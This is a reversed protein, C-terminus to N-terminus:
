SVPTAAVELEEGIDSTSSVSSTVESVSVSQTSYYAILASFDLYVVLSSEGKESSGVRSDKPTVLARLGEPQSLSFEPRQGRLRRSKRLLEAM